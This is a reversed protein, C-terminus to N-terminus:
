ELTLDGAVGDGQGQLTLVLVGERLQLRQGEYTLGAGLVAQDAELDVAALRRHWGQHACEVRGVELHGRQCDRPGAEVVDEKGLVTAREAVVVGDSPLLAAM